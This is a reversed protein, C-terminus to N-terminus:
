NQKHKGYKRQIMRELECASFPVNLTTLEIVSVITYYFMFFWKISFRDSEKFQSPMLSDMLSVRRRNILIKFNQDVEIEIKTKYFAKELQMIGLCVELLLYKRTQKKKNNNFEKM